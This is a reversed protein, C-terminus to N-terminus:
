GGIKDSVKIKGAATKGVMTSKLVGMAPLSDSHVVCLLFVPPTDFTFM